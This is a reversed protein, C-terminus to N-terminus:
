ISKRAQYLLKILPNSCWTIHEIDRLESKFRKHWEMPKGFFEVTHIENNHHSHHKFIEFKLQLAPSLKKFNEDYATKLIILKKGSKICLDTAIIKEDALYYWAEAAGHQAYHSLLQHYFKGQANNINVATGGSAKWGSSELRGFHNIADLIDDPKTVLKTTLEINNKKCRNIVKNYNQRMNKGLQNFFEQYDNNIQLKGTTIYHDASYNRLLTINLKSTDQQIFDILFVQGPLSKKLSNILQNDWINDRVMWLGLPAQSFQYTQYRGFGVHQFIGIALPGKNDNCFAILTNTHDFNDLCIQIFQSDLIPQDISQQNLCDWENAVLSFQTTNLLTWKM